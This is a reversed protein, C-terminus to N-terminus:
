GHNNREATHFIRAANTYLIEALKEIEIGAIKATEAAIMAAAAPENHQAPWGPPAQDPADTEVILASLPILQLLRALRAPNRLAAGSLSITSGATIFRAAMEPSGSWSHMIFAVRGQYPLMLEYAKQYHGVLHVIVPLRYKEALQLHWIFVECQREVATASRRDLGCEGIAIPQYGDNQWPPDDAPPWKQHDIFDPHVGWAPLLHEDVSMQRLNGPAGTVGPVVISQIGAAYARQLVDSLPLSAPLRDLHCHSDFFRM